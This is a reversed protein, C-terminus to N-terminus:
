RFFSMSANLSIAYFSQSESLSGRGFWSEGDLHENPFLKYFPPVFELLAGSRAYM